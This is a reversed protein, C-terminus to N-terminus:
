NGAALNGEAVIRGNRKRDAEITEGFKVPGVINLEAGLENVRKKLAEDAQLRLFAAALKDIVVDPTKAPALYGFWIANIMEPRGLEAMTPVQPFLSVRAASLTALPLLKGAEIHGKIPPIVLLMADLRDALLDVIAQAAANYPVLTFKVDASKKLLEVALHMEGGLGQVGFSVKGPNAKAHAVFEDVTHVGLTPRVILLVPQFLGIAVPRFDRAPEYDIKQPFHEVVAVASPSTFLLTYGDPPAKAVLAAGLRSGAGPKNEIVLRQGLHKEVAEATIRGANDMGAGAGVPIVVKIPRNPYDDQAPVQIPALGVFALLVVSPLAYRM